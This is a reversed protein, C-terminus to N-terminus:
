PRRTCDAPRALATHLIRSPHVLTSFGVHRAGEVKTLRFHASSLALDHHYSFRKVKTRSTLTFCSHHLSSYPHLTLTAILITLRCLRPPCRRWGAFLALGLLRLLPMVFEVLECLLVFHYFSNRSCRSMKHLSLDDGGTKPGHEHATHDM